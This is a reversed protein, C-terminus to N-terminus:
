PGNAQPILAMLAAPQNVPMTVPQQSPATAKFDVQNARIEGAAHLPGLAKRICAPLRPLLALCIEESPSHSTCERCGARPSLSLWQPWFRLQNLEAEEWFRRGMGPGKGMQEEGGMRGRVSLRKAEGLRRKKLQMRSLSFEWPLAMHYCHHSPMTIAKQNQGQM